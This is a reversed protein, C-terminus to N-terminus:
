ILLIRNKLYIKESRKITQSYHLKPALLYNQIVQIQPSSYFGVFTKPSKEFGKPIDFLSTIFGCCNPNKEQPKPIESNSSKECNNLGYKALPCHSQQKAKIDTCCFLCLLGALCLIQTAAFIKKLMTIKELSFAIM